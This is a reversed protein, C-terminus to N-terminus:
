CKKPQFSFLLSKLELTLISPARSQAAAVALAATQALLLEGATRKVFAVLRVAFCSFYYHFYKYYTLTFPGLIKLCERLFVVNSTQALARVGDRTYVSQKKFM